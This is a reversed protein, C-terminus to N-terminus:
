GNSRDTPLYRLADPAEAVPAPMIGPYERTRLLLNTKEYIPVGAARAAGEIDLVWERPPRWEPTQTSPSAGGLVLWDFAGLDTFTLPEILPECSLWKFAAKVKRFAKEANAVRAQCDVTTGVWANPPFEFEAMRSPFKTLFLFNWQPAAAAEALVAAIWERPVWRGFLDAMSCVFVNKHGMWEAVKASPYRTNGPAKLREPWLAPAFKHGYLRDALDRAYCYPCNHLCGSVPNWSWLAWEINENDGQPNFKKDGHTALAEKRARAGLASWEELTVVRDPGSEDDALFSEEEPGDETLLRLADALHLAAKCKDWERAVRMYSSVQQRSLPVNKELWKLFKGHGCRGKAKILAEGANRFHELCKRADGEGAEHEANVVSALHNLDAEDARVEAAVPLPFLEGNM